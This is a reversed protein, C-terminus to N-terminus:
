RHSTFTEVGQPDIYATVDDKIVHYPTFNWNYNNNLVYPSLGAPLVRRLDSSDHLNACPICRVASVQCPGDGGRMDNPLNLYLLEDILPFGLPSSETRGSGAAQINFPGTWNLWIKVRVVKADTGAQPGEYM